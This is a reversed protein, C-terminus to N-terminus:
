CKETTIDFYSECYESLEETIYDDILLKMKSAIDGDDSILDQFLMNSIITGITMRKMEKFYYNYGEDIYYCPSYKRCFLKFRYDIKSLDYRRIIDKYKRVRIKDKYEM